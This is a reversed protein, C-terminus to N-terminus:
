INRPPSWDKRKYIWGGKNIQISQRDFEGYDVKKDQQSFEEYYKQLRDDADKGDRYGTKHAAMQEALQPNTAFYLWNPTSSDQDLNKKSTFEDFEGKTGHYLVMPEGDDHILQGKGM